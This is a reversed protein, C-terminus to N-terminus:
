MSAQEAVSEETPITVMSKLSYQGRQAHFEKNVFIWTIDNYVCKNSSVLSLLQKRTVVTGFTSVIYKVLEKREAPKRGWKSQENYILDIM